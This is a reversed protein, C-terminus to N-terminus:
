QVRVYYNMGYQTDVTTNCTADTATSSQAVTELKAYVYATAIGNQTCSYKMYVYTTNTPDSGSRAGTPDIIEKPTYGANVL